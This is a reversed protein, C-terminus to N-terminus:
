NRRTASSACNGQLSCSYFLPGGLAARASHLMV